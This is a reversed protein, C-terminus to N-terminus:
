FAALTHCSCSAVKKWAETISDFFFAVLKSTAIQIQFNFLCHCWHSVSFARSSLTIQRNNSEKANGGIPHCINLM